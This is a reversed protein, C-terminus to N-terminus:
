VVCVCVCVRVRMCDIIAGFTLGGRKKRVMAAVAGAQKALRVKVEVQESTADGRDIVTAAFTRTNEHTHVLIM